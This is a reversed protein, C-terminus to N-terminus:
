QAEPPLLAQIRDAIAYLHARLEPTEWEDHIKDAALRVTDVDARTFGPMQGARELDNVVHALLVHPRRRKYDEFDSYTPKSM